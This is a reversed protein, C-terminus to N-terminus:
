ASYVLKPVDAAWADEPKWRHVHGCAPCRMPVAIPPLSEFIVMDTTLGTRVARRTQPCRILIDGMASGDTERSLSTPGIDIRLPQM